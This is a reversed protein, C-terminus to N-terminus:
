TLSDLRKKIRSFSEPTVGLYSALQHQPVRKILSPRNQLLEKVRDEPSLAAFFYINENIEGLREGLMVTTMDKLDPYALFMDSKLQTKSYILICDESCIISYKSVKDKATENFVNVWQGEEYFESTVDDGKENIRYQRLCGSIVFICHNSPEGQYLIMSGKKFRKVPLKSVIESIEEDTSQIYSKLVKKLYADALQDRITFVEWAIM